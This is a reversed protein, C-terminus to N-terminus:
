ASRGHSGDLSSQLISRLNFTSPKGGSENHTPTIFQPAKGSCEEEVCPGRFARHFYSIQPLMLEFARVV